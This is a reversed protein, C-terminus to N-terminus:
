WQPSIAEGQLAGRELHRLIPFYTSRRNTAAITVRKVRLAAIHAILYKDQQKDDNSALCSQVIAWTKKENLNSVNTM